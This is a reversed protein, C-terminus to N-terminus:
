KIERMGRCKPYTSCIWFLKGANEGNKAKRKVMVASCAQCLTLNTGSETLNNIPKEDVINLASGDILSVNSDSLGLASFIKGRLLQSDYMAAYDVKVIPLSASECAAKIKPEIANGVDVVCLAALQTKDCVVFAFDNSVLNNQAVQKALNNENIAVLLDAANINTLIYFENALAAQLANYISRQADNFVSLKKSYTVKVSAAPVLLSAQPQIKIQAAATAPLDIHGPLQWENPNFAKEHRSKVNKDIRYIAVGFGVAFLVLILVFWLM